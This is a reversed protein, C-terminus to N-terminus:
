HIKRLLSTIENESFIEMKQSKLLAVTVGCGSIKTHTFTGDYVFNVGCSPSGEKFIGYQIGFLKAIKLTEFAGRLYSKTVDEGNVNKVLAKKSLVEAGAGNIIEASERPTSLGGLQEPCVPILVFRDKLALVEKSLNNKGNYKTDLGLLCASVLIIGKAQM